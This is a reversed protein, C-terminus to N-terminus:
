HSKRSLKKYASKKEFKLTLDGTTVNDLSAKGQSDLTGSRIEGSPLRVKYKVNTMPKGNHDVFKLDAKAKLGLLGSRSRCPGVTVEFYYEPASFRKPETIRGPRKKAPTGNRADAPEEAVYIWEGEVKGGRVETDEGHVQIDPGFLDRRFIACQAPTKEKFGDVKASWKVKDGVQAKDKEWKASHVALLDVTCNGKSLADRTVRGDLRLIGTSQKGDPTTIAYPLGSVPVGASDTFAFEAWHEIKTTSENNGSQATAASAAASGAGASGSGGGSASGSGGEGILVTPCGMLISDPPGVCILMDGMRAAPMGGILVMPSGLIVPGGVHPIPPVAPTVMPCVHMDGMRAAPQGGILVMPFGLMISGGHATMDGMRAAPPM